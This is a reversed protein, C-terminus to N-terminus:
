EPPHTWTPPFLDDDETPDGDTVAIGHRWALYLLYVLAGLILLAVM